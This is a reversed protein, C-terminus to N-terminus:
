NFKPSYFPFANRYFTAEVCEAIIYYLFVDHLNSKLICTAKAIFKYAFKKYIKM